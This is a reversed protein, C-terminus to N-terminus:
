RGPWTGKCSNCTRAPAGTTVEARSESSLDRRQRCFCLYGALLLTMRFASSSPDGAAYGDLTHLAPQLSPSDCELQRFRLFCRPVWCDSRCPHLTGPRRSYSHCVITSNALMCSLRTRYELLAFVSTRRMAVSAAFLNSMQPCTDRSAVLGVMARLNPLVELSAPSSSMKSISVNAVCIRPARHARVVLSPVGAAVHFRSKRPAFSFRQWHIAHWTVVPFTAFNIRTVSESLPCYYM